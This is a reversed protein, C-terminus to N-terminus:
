GPALRHQQGEDPLDLGAEPQGRQHPQDPDASLFADAGPRPRDDALRRRADRGQRGQGGGEGPPEQEPGRGRSRDGPRDHRGVRNLARREHFQEEWHRVRPAKTKVRDQTTYVGNVIALQIASTGGDFIEFKPSAMTVDRANTCAALSLRAATPITAPRAATPPTASAWAGSSCFAGAAAAGAAPAGEVAASSLPRM